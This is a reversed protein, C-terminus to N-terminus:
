SGNIIGKLELRTKARIRRNVKRKFYKREGPRWCLYHHWRTLADYEDGSILKERHGMM